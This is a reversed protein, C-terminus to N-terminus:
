CTIAKKGTQVGLQVNRNIAVWRTLGPAHSYDPAMASFADFTTPFDAASMWGQELGSLVAFCDAREEDETELVIHGCEHALIFGQMFRAFKILRHPNVVIEPVSRDAHAVSDLTHDM